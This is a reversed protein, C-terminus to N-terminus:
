NDLLKVPNLKQSECKSIISFLEDIKEYYENLYKKEHAISVYVLNSAMVGRKLMEQTIFTKYINSYKSIISFGCIADLGFINIKLNHAKALAM